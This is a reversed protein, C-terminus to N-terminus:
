LLSFSLAFSEVKERLDGVKRIEGRPFLFPMWAPHRKKKEELPLAM